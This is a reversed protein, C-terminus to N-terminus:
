EPTKDVDIILSRRKTEREKSTATSVKSIADHTCNVLEPLAMKKNKNKLFRIRNTLAILQPDKYIKNLSYSNGKM